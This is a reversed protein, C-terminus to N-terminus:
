SRSPAGPTGKAFSASIAGIVVEVRGRERSARAAIRVPQPPLSSVALADLVVVEALLPSGM